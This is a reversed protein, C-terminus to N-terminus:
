IRLIFQFVMFTDPSHSITIFYRDQDVSRVSRKTTLRVMAEGSDMFSVVDLESILSPPSIRAGIM